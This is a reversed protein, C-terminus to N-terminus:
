RKRKIQKRKKSKSQLFSSNMNVRLRVFRTTLGTKKNQYSVQGLNFVQEGSEQEAKDKTRKAMAFAVLKEKNLPM